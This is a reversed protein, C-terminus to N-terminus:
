SMCDEPITNEEKKPNAHSWGILMVLLGILLLVAAKTCVYNRVYKKYVINRIYRYYQGSKHPM